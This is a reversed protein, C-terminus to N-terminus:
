GATPLYGNGVLFEMVQAAGQLPTGECTAVRVEPSEPVEYPDDVGTFSQLHGSRARAYFGKVDRQECVAVPTDVFVEIFSGEPMMQRVRARASRYPSVAACIAIGGHRVIESAVFGIRQVNTDRDERSFGLGRSLHTRVIDGDLLTVRRGREMLGAILREAITSKGAGPLGTLWICFGAPSALNRRATVRGAEQRGEPHATEAVLPEMGIEELSRVLFQSKSVPESGAPIVYAQAGYNRDIIARLLLSREDPRLRPLPLFNLIARPGFASALGKECRRLWEYTEFDDIREPTAPLNLLLTAEREAAMRRLSETCEQQAPDWSDVAIVPGAVAPERGGLLDRIAQPTRFLEAFLLPEAFGLVDMRGSVAPAAHRGEEEAADFIEEVSMLGLLHNSPDRLAVRQGERLASRPDARLILPIPFISGDSLRMERRVCGYDARGMFRDLPSLAGTAIMQLWATDAPSLQLSPLDRAERILAPRAQAEAMLNKLTGGCPTALGRGIAFTTRRM